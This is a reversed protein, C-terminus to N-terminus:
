RIQLVGDRHMCVNSVGLCFYVTAANKQGHLSCPSRFQSQLEIASCYLKRTLFVRGNEAQQTWHEVIQSAHRTSHNAVQKDWTVFFEKYGCIYPHQLDQLAM